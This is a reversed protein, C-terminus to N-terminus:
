TSQPTGFIIIPLDNEEAHKRLKEPIQSVDEDYAFVGQVKPHTVLIENYQRGNARKGNEMEKFLKQMADAAKKDAKEIDTISRCQQIRSMLGIYQEDTNGLAEKLKDSIYNREQQENRFLYDGKLDELNKQLGSGFDMYYAAGIDDYDVDLIFGQERFVRYDDPKILSTSLLNDTEINKLSMFQAIKGDVGWAYGNNDAYDDNDDFAHVLSYFNDQKTGKEFGATEFDPKQNMYIVKNKIGNVEVEKIGQGIKLQSAKPIKTQPLPIATSQIKKIYKEILNASINKDDPPNLMKAKLKSDSLIKALEFSNGKRFGYAIDKAAGENEAKRWDQYNIVSHLKIEDSNPIGLREVMMYADFASDQASDKDINHFLVALQLIHKDSDNLFKYSSDKVVEQLTKINDTDIKLEPFAQTIKNLEGELEKNANQQNNELNVKPLINELNNMADFCSKKEDDKLPKCSPCIDETIKKMLSCYQEKNKPLVSMANGFDYGFLDSNSKVLVRLLARKGKMSLLNIDTKKYLEDLNLCIEIGAISILKNRSNKLQLISDLSQINDKNLAPLINGIDYSDLQGNRATLLTDLHKGNDKNLKPLIYEIDSSKFQGNRTTL